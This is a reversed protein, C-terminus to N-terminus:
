KDRFGNSVFVPRMFPLAQDDIGSITYSVDSVTRARQTTRATTVCAEVQGKALLLCLQTSTAPRQTGM